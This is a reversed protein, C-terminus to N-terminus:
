AKYVGAVAGNIHEVFHTKLKDSVDFWMDAIRPDYSGSPIGSEM